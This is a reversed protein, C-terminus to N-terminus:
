RMRVWTFLGGIWAALPLAAVIAALEVWEALMRVLPTFRTVPVLAAAALGAAAFCTLLATAWYLASALNGPDDIVYRVAGACVAAAAGLVLAVAQRRDAFARGRSVFIVIFLSALLAAAPGHPGGPRLTAWVAMPLAIASAACVGTLVGNARIAAAVVDAGRPTADQDPDDDAEAAVPAVADAPMGIRREFLDRGTVSGFHPPRIRAWWLAITPAATLLGLLTVLAGMGIWRAPVPHWMRVGAAMAALVCLTVTAAGFTIDRDTVTVVAAGFVAFSLAAIFLHAAGMPGPAASALGGAILGAALWSFGSLLERQGPWWRRVAYAGGSVAVGVALAAIAPAASASRIRTYIALGLVTVVTMALIALATQAATRATVPPFLEKGTRALATSLSEVQPEFSEGPEAPVLMLTTGDEVGHEALTKAPDLRAGNARQLEYCGGPEPVVSDRRRLDDRILEVVSDIFTEIPVSAPYVQSVLQEGFVVAVACRAPFTAKATM